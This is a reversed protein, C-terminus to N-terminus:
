YVKLSISVVAALMPDFGVGRARTLELPVAVSRCEAPPSPTEPKGPSLANSLVAEVAIPPAPTPPAATRGTLVNPVSSEKVNSHQNLAEDMGDFAALSNQAM